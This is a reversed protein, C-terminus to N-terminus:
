RRVSFFDYKTTQVVVNTSLSFTAQLLHVLLSSGLLIQNLKGNVLHYLINCIYLYWSKCLLFRLPVIRLLLNLYKGKIPMTFLMVYHNVYRISTVIFDLSYRKADLQRILNIILCIRCATGYQWTSLIGIGSLLWSLIYPVFRTFFTVQDSNDPFHTTFYEILSLM